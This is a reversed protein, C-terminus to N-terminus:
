APNAPFPGSAVRRALRVAPHLRRRIQGATLQYTADLARIEDLMAELRKRRPRETLSRQWRVPGRTSPRVADM